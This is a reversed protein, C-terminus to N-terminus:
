RARGSRTGASATIRGAAATVAGQGIIEYRVKGTV